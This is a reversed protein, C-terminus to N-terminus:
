VDKGVVSEGRKLVRRLYFYGISDTGTVRKGTRETGADDFAFGYLLGMLLSDFDRSENTGLVTGHGCQRGVQKFLLLYTYHYDGATRSPIKKHKKAAFLFLM